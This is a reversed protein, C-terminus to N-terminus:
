EPLHVRPLNWEYKAALIRLILVIIVSAIIAVQPHGLNDLLLYSLAGAISATAYVHKRFIYPVNGAFIDRLLGGGVGTIVGVFLLLFANDFGLNQVSRMGLATFAGLGLADSILLASDWIKSHIDKNMKSVIAVFIFACLAVLVAIIANRPNQFAVPPLEGIIIDRIIGGGVATVLGLVLVGLMDMEKKMAEIAGSISFAVTGLIEMFLIIENM